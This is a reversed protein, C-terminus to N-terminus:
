IKAIRLIRTKSTLSPLKGALPSFILYPLDEMGNISFRGWGLEQQELLSHTIYRSINEVQQANTEAQMKKVVEDLSISVPSRFDGDKTKIKTIRYEM